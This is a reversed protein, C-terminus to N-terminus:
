LVVPAPIHFQEGILVRRWERRKQRLFEEAERWREAGFEARIEAEIRPPIPSRGGGAYVWQRDVVAANTGVHAAHGASPEIVALRGSALSVLLGPRLAAIRRSQEGTPTAIPQAFNRALLHFWEDRSTTHLTGNYLRVRYPKGRKKMPHDDHFYACTERARPQQPEVGKFPSRGHDFQRRGADAGNRGSRREGRACGM